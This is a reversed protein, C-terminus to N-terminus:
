WKRLLFMFFSRIRNTNIVKITDAQPVFAVGVSSIAGSGVLFIAGSGVLSPAAGSGVLSGIGSFRLNRRTVKEQGVYMSGATPSSKELEVDRAFRYSASTNGLASPLM